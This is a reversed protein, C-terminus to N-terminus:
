NSGKTNLRNSSVPAKPMRKTFTVALLLLSPSILILYVLGLRFYTPLLSHSTKYAPKGEFAGYECDWHFLNGSTKVQQTEAAKYECTYDNLMNGGGVAIPLLMLLAWFGALLVM